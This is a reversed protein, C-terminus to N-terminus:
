NNQLQLEVEDLKMNSAKLIKIRYNGIEVVQGQEPISECYHLVLGALTEYDDSVPLNLKYTENLYDIELRASLIFTNNGVVKEV